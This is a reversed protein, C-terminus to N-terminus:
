GLDNSYGARFSFATGSPEASGLKEEAKLRMDSNPEIGMVRNAAGGWIFTSLGTGCGVDMVLEPKKGLYLTLLEKVKQPAAPRHADYLEQFGLFRDVNSQHNVKEHM